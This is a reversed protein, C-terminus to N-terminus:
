CRFEWTQCSAFDSTEKGKGKEDPSKPEDQEAMEARLAAEEARLKAEKMRRYEDLWDVWEIEKSAGTGLGLEAMGDQRFALVEDPEREDGFSPFAMERRAQGYISDFGVSGITSASTKWKRMKANRSALIIQAYEDTSENAVAAAGPPIVSTRHSALLGRGQQRRALPNGHDPVGSASLIRQSPIGLSLPSLGLSLPSVGLDYGGANRAGSEAGQYPDASLSLSSSLSLYVSKARDRTRVPPQSPGPSPFPFLPSFASSSRSSPSSAHSSIYVPSTVPSATLKDESARRSPARSGVRSGGRSSGQSPPQSRGPESTGSGAGSGSGSVPSPARTGQPTKPMTSNMFAGSQGPLSMAEGLYSAGSPSRFDMASRVAEPVKQLKISEIPPPAVPFPQPMPSALAVSLSSRFLM